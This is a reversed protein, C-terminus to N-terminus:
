HTGPLMLPGNYAKTRLTTIHENKIYRRGDVFKGCHLGYYTHPRDFSQETPLICEISGCLPFSCENTPM